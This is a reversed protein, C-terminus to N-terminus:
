IQRYKMCLIQYLLCYNVNHRCSIFFCSLYPLKEGLLWLLCMMIIEICPKTCFQLARRIWFKTCAQSRYDHMKKIQECLIYFFVKSLYVQGVPPKVQGQSSLLPIQQAMLQQLEMALASTNSCDQVSVDIDSTGWHCAAIVVEDNQKEARYPTGASIWNGISDGGRWILVQSISSHKMVSSMSSPACSQVGPFYLPSLHHGQTIYETCTYRDYVCIFNAFWWHPWQANHCKLKGAVLSNTWCSYEPLCWLLM